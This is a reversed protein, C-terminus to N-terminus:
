IGWADELHEVSPVGSEGPLIAIADFRYTLTGNGFERIWSRAVEEIEQQKRVGVAEFPHGFRDTTRTKVEVFVVVGGRRAVLDVEKRGSRFKRHLITWGNEELHQAAVTEGWDGLRSACV